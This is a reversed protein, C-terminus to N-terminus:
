FAPKGYPIFNVIYSYILLNIEEPLDGLGKVSLRDVRNL